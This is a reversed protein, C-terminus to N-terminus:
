KREDTLRYLKDRDKKLRVDIMEEKGDPYILISYPIGTISYNEKLGKYYEGAILSEWPIEEKDILKRWQELGNDEDTTIYVMNLRKNLDKYIDKLLPIQAHCPGCWSASFIVLTYKSKDAIVKKINGTKSDTLSLSNLSYPMVIESLYKEFRLGDETSRLEQSFNDFVVKQGKKDKYGTSWLFRDFLSKSNSHKKVYDIRKQLEKDYNTSPIVDFDPFNLFIEINSNGTILKIDFIDYEFTPAFVATDTLIYAVNEDGSCRDDIITKLYKGEITVVEQDPEIGSIMYDKNPVSFSLLGEKRKEFDFPQTKIMYGETHKRHMSDPILFLWNYGDDSTGEIEFALSVPISGDSFPKKLTLYESRIWLKDYKKGELKLIIQYGGKNDGKMNNSCSISVFAVVICYLLLIYLRKKM